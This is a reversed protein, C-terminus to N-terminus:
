YISFRFFKQPLSPDLPTLFTLVEGSGLNTAIGTWPIPSALTEATELVYTVGTESQVSIMLNTGEVTLPLIQPAVTTVRITGATQLQATNWRLGPELPPLNTNAFSGGYI